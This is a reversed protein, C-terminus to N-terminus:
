PTRRRPPRLTLSFVFTIAIIIAGALFAIYYSGTVDFIYGALIPGFAGGVTYATNIMGFIAGIAKTGFFSGALSPMLPVLGGYALAHISVIVYFAPLSSARTLAFLMLAQTALSATLVIRGNIRTAATGLVLRGMTNTIGSLTLIIAAAEPTAGTDIAAAVIHVTIIQYGAGVVALSLLLGWLAATHLAEGLTYNDETAPPTTSPRAAEASVREVLPGDRPPRRMLRWAVPAVLLAAVGLVVYTTEWGYALILYTALPPIIVQAMGFGSLLIGNAM